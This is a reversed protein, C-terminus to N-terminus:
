LVDMILLCLDDDFDEKGSFEKLRALFKNTFSEPELDTNERIFEKFRKIGFLKRSKKEKNEIVGDTFLIIRDNKNLKVELMEIKFDDYLGLPMANARLEIFEDAESRYILPLIHGANSYKLINSKVDIVCFFATVYRDMVTSNYIVENIGLLVKSPDSKDKINKLAMKTITALFAGSIGHGSVDAIFIELMGNDEALDYFDGGIKDMPIYIIHAKYGTLQPIVKPLLKQQLQRAIELDSEIRMNREALTREYEYIKLLNRMRTLLEKSNFPKTVYDDAGFELGEIKHMIDAKATLMIVPIFKNTEKIIRTMDYGNLNPMMVDTLVIDPNIEALKKLGDNGDTAEYIDYYRLLLSKLFNRMDNNDEVILVKYRPAEDKGTEAPGKALMASESEKLEAMERMGTFRRDSVLEYEVNDEILDYDKKELPGKRKPIIVKFVTGHNDRHKEIYRSEVSISGGHMETFEKALALGIGTGEYKRSPGTDVRTFRDFIIGIKDEPIGIGTDSIEIICNKEDESVMIDIRGGQDTFKLANSLLNMLVRDLKEIDIYLNIIDSSHYFNISIDKSQATQTIVDAYNQVVQVVNRETLNLRMQGDEIKAFDLINNVLRLLRIANKQISKYFEEGIEGFDGQLVSEVPSLIMTLPTRIEHSVSTFFNTKMRDLEKLQENRVAVEYNQRVLEENQKEIRAREELGAGMQVISSTLEGLEDNTRPIMNVSFKGNEIEKVAEMIEKIPKTINRCFVYVVMIAITLIIITTYIYIRQLKYVARYVKEERATAIVGIGAFGIKNFSGLYSIGNEDRYRYHGNDMPNKKMMNVIELKSYNGGSLVINPDSHALIDGTWNVIFISTIEDRSKFSALLKDISIYGILISKVKNDMGTIPIIISLVPKNFYVSANLILEEGNFAHLIIDNNNKNATNIDAKNIDLKELLTNNYLQNRVFIKKGSKEGIGAYIINSESTFFIDNLIDQGSAPQKKQLIINIGRLERLVSQIETKIMMAVMGAQNLNSEQIRVRNDGKFSFVALVIIIASTLIVIISVMFILKTRISFIFPKHKLTKHQAMDSEM